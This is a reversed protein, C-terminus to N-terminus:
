CKEKKIKWVKCAGNKIKGFLFRDFFINREFIENKNKVFYLKINKM